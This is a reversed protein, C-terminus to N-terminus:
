KFVFCNVSQNPQLQIKEGNDSASVLQLGDVANIHSAHGLVKKGSRVLGIAMIQNGENLLSGIMPADCSQQTIQMGALVQGMPSESASIEEILMKITTVELSLDTTLTHEALQVQTLRENWENDTAQTGTLSELAFIVCGDRDRALHTRYEDPTMGHRQAIIELWSAM